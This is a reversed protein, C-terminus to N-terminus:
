AWYKPRGYYDYIRIEYARNVPAAPDYPPCDEITKQPVDVWVEQQQWDIDKVWAPSILVSRGVRWERTDVVLYRIIWEEDSLIFDELHGIQGDTAHIRYGRVERTSRLSSEEPSEVLVATEREAETESPPTPAVELGHILGWYPTWGYHQHLELERQRSVPKDTDIDPADRIQEKTLDARFIRDQWDPRDLVKPSILVKRGPLWRGTDVVLYRIAWTGCDFLFSYVRGIEGDTAGLTFGLLNDISRLMVKRDMIHRKRVAM